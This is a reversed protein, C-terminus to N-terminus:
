KARYFVEIGVKWLGKRIHTVHFTFSTHCGVSSLEAM